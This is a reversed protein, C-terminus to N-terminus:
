KIFSLTTLITLINDAVNALPLQEVLFPYISCIETLIRFCWKILSWVYDFM